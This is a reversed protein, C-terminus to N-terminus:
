GLGRYHASALSCLPLNLLVILVLCACVERRLSCGCSYADVNEGDIREESAVSLGVLSTSSMCLLKRLLGQEELQLLQLEHSFLLWHRWVELLLPGSWHLVARLLGEDGM